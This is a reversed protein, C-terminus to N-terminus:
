SFIPIIGAGARLAPPYRLLVELCARTIGLHRTGRRHEEPQWPDTVSSMYLRKGVLKGQQGAQDLLAAANVKAKVWDGWTARLERDYVWSAAYCYKCAFQCGSYPNLSYDFTDLFGGTPTLISKARVEDVVVKVAAVIPLETGDSM